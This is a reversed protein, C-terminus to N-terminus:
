GPGGGVCIGIVPVCLGPRPSPAPDDPQPPAPDHPAPGPTDRPPQRSTPPHPRRTTPRTTAPTAPSTTTDPVPTRARSSREPATLPAPNKGGLVTPSSPSAEPVPAFAGPATPSGTPTGADTHPVPRPSAETGIGTHPAPRPGAETGIDTGGDQTTALGVLTVASAAVALSGAALLAKRPRPKRHRGRLRSTGAPPEGAPTTPTM